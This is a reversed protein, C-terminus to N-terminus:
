GTTVRKGQPKPTSVSTQVHRVYLLFGVLIISWYTILRDLLAISGAMTAPTDVLKLVVIVAAEVVGLGAPTIPLTTLLSSMLAVFIATPFPLHEGLALAVLLLRIGDGMWIGISLGATKWPRRLCSFIADHLRGFQEQVRRPLRRELRARLVWLLGLGAVGVLLLISGGILTRRAEGPMHGHFAYFGSVTMLTFLVILDILREALITGLGTSFSARTRQKLLYSRYADGLKAPVVCNAFWSLLFIEAFSATSPVDYGNERTVGAQALMGRWRVARIFFTAYYVAFALALLGVNAHQINKWVEGLDIELRRFFYVLLAIALGFSVVTRPRLIRSSLTEQENDIEGLVQHDNDGQVASSVAGDLPRQRTEIDSRALDHRM